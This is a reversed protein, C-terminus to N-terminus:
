VGGHMKRYDRPTSSTIERFRRNFNALNNFGSEFAIESISADSHLLRSCARAVRVESLYRHFPRGTRSRFFRCFAQPSLRLVEAAQAQTLESDAAYEEIWGLLKQLRVDVATAAQASVNLDRAGSHHALRDLLELWAALRRAGPSIKEIEAFLGLCGASDKGRFHIGRRARELMAAIRRMEPLEWFAEGWITPLFQGVVWEAGQREAPDSGFAHPVNEGILCFDGPLYPEMSHGSDLLGRGERVHILEFD